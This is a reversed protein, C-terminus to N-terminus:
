LADHHRPIFRLVSNPSKVFGDFIDISCFVFFAVQFPKMRKFSMTFPLKM